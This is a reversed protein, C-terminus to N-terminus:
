EASPASVDSGPLCAMGAYLGNQECHAVYEAPMRGRTAADWEVIYKIDAGRGQSESVAGTWGSIDVQPFEPMKVGDNVRIQSGAGLKSSKSKAM